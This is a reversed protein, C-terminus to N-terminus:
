FAPQGFAAGEVHFSRESLDFAFGSKGQFNEVFVSEM